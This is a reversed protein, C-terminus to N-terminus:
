RERKLFFGAISAVFIGGLWGIFIYISILYFPNQLIEKVKDIQDLQIKGAEKMLLIQKDLLNFWLQPEFIIVLSIGCGVLIAAFVGLNFGLRMIERHSIYGGKIKRYQVFAYIMIRISLFYTLLNYIINSGFLFEILTFIFIVVGLLLGYGAAHKTLIPSNLEDMM